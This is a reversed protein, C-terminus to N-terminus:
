EKVARSVMYVSAAVLAASVSFWFVKRLWEEAPPRPVVAESLMRVEKVFMTAAFLAAIIAALVIVIKAVVIWGVPDPDFFQIVVNRGEVEIYNINISPYKKKVEAILDRIKWMENESIEMNLEAIIEYIYGPTIVEECYACEGGSCVTTDTPFKEGVKV